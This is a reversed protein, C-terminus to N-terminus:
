GTAAEVACAAGDLPRATGPTGPRWEVCAWNRRATDPVPDFRDERSQSGKGVLDPIVWRGERQQIQNVELSLIEARRLGCGVLLALIARDRLGGM